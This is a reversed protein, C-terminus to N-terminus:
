ASEVRAPLVERLKEALRPLLLPKSLYDTMGAALCQARHEPLAHATLAVVVQPTRGQEQEWRRLRRTAEFGDMQPMECDMFVVDFVPADTTQLLDLAQQGSGVVQSAVGLRQLFGQIVMQNVANDEVVLVHRGAFLASDQRLATDSPVPAPLPCSGEAMTVTFRFQSGQGPTSSVSIHGQMLEVLQKSIALGLGTGGYQRATSTDAQSFSNFLLPLKDAPIGIGSDEVEFRLRVIGDQRSEVSARLHVTGHETFKIANSILNLLIQRLRAMDGRLCPPLDRSRECVLSLSKERAKLSFIRICDDLLDLLSFDAAELTVKGAAIKSYDLIDNIVHLLAQGSDELTDVYNKQVSDLRTHDLLQTIGLLANLPTRIEHSMRALFDTKAASEAEARLIAQKQQERDRKLTNLREALALALLLQQLIFALEMGQLSVMFSFAPFFGLSQLSLLAAMGILPLWSLLFIRIEGTRHRLQVITAVLVAAIVPLSFLAQLPYITQLPLAFQLWALVAAISGLSLLTLNMARPLRKTGGLFDRAFLASTALMLLLFFPLAHSNWDPSRPWLRYAIGNMCLLYFFASGVYLVYFRFVKERVAIWLFLHYVLLGGIIGFGIGTVLELKEHHAAYHPYDSLVLPMNMASSSTVRLYYEQQQGPELRLPFAFARTDLPRQAFPALDGTRFPALGSGPRHLEVVDHIPYALQLLLERRTDGANAVRFRFWCTGSQFGLVLAKGAASTFPLAQVEMLDLDSRADCRWALHPELPTMPLAGSVVLTGPAAAQAAATLLWLLLGCFWAAGPQRRPHRDATRM